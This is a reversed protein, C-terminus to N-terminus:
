LSNKRSRLRPSTQPEPRVVPLEVQHVTEAQDEPQHNFQHNERPRLGNQARGADFPQKCLVCCFPEVDLEFDFTAYKVGTRQMHSDQGSNVIPSDCNCSRRAEKLALLKTTGLDPFSSMEM